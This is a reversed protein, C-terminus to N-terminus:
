SSPAESGHVVLVPCGALEAVRASVSGLLLGAFGGHGRSGVVLMLADACEDLLVRVPHGNRILVGLYSPRDDGYVRDVAGNVAAELDEKPSYQPPPVPGSWGAYQWAGVVDISAHEARAIRRAWRLAAMSGASGDVGVVIRPPQVIESV